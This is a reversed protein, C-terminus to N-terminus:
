YDTAAQFNRNLREYLRENEIALAGLNAIAEVMAVEERDFRRPQSTYIRLVGIPHSRVRLATVLMSAIGEAAAQEPYQFRQDQCADEVYITADSDLAVRDIGSGALDVPGKSRYNPSLGLSAGVLLRTGDPSLLRVSAAKINLNTVAETLLQDLVQMVDLSSNVSKLLRMLTALSQNADIM